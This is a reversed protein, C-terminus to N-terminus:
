RQAEGQVLFSVLSMVLVVPILPWHLLGIAAFTAAVVALSRWSLRLRRLMKLGNGAILAAAAIAMGGIAADVRALGAWREYLEGLGILILIPAAMLSTICTISGRLGAFREGIMISANVINPGPLAQCLGLIEAFERESLRKREEVIVRRAVPLVGGFGCLGMKLFGAALASLAIHPLGAQREQATVISM